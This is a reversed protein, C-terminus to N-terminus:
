LTVTIRYTLTLTTSAPVDVSYLTRDICIRWASSGFLAYIGAEKINVEAGTNNLFGRAIALRWTSADAEEIAFATTQHAIDTIVQTQLKYDVMTVATEGTGIVIGYNTEAAGACKLNLTWAGTSKNIGYIDKITIASGSMQVTLLQIFQKLLSHCRRFPIRRIIEGNADRIEAGIETRLSQM